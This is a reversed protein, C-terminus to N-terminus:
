FEPCINDDSDYNGILSLSLEFSSKYFNNAGLGSVGIDYSLGVIFSNLQIGTMVIVDSFNFQDFDQVGRGWAAFHIYSPSDPIQMKIGSGLVIENYEGQVSYLVKPTLFVNEGISFAAALYGNIRSNLTFDTEFPPQDVDTQNFFSTNPQNLHLISAGAYVSTNSNFTIAYNIGLGLDFFGFNNPPLIESTSGGFSNLGDFQDNFVLNEYSVNKQNIGMQAGISLFQRDGLSKHFAGSFAFVNTNFDYTGYRDGLFILGAAFYDDSKYRNKGFNLKADGSLAYTSFPDDLANRWQDRYITNVRFTGNFAGTLAPNLYIPNAFFQSFHADQANLCITSFLFISILIKKIM